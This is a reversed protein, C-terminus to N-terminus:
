PLKAIWRAAFYISFILSVVTICQWYIQYVFWVSEDHFIKHIWFAEPPNKDRRSSFQQNLWYITEGLSRVVWFVSIILLFLIWDNLLLTTISSGVWFLSFIVADAWVFSGLIALHCRGHSNKKYKCEWYSKVFIGLNLIGFTIILLQQWYQMMKSKVM